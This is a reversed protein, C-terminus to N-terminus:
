LLPLPLLITRSSQVGACPVCTGGISVHLATCNQLPCLRANRNAKRMDCLLQVLHQLSSYGCFHEYKSNASDYLGRCQLKLVDRYSTLQFLLLRYSTKQARWVIEVLILGKNTGQFFVLDKARTLYVLFCM